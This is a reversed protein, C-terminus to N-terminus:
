QSEVVARVTYLEVHEVHVLANYLLEILSKIRVYNRLEAYIIFYKINSQVSFAGFAYFVM